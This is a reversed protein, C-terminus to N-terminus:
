GAVALAALAVGPPLAQAISSRWLRRETVFLVVGSVAMSLSTFVVLATGADAQGFRALAVGTLAALGFFLNYFGQNVVWLRVTAEQGPEILFISHLEPRRYFFSELVFVVVLTVGMFVAVIQTVANM